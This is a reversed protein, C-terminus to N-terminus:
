GGKKSGRQHKVRLLMTLMADPSTYYYGLVRNTVVAALTAAAILRLDETATDDAAPLDLHQVM